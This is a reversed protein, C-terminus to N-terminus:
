METIDQGFWRLRKQSAGIWVIRQAGYKEKQTYGCVLRIMNIKNRDVEVEHEVKM